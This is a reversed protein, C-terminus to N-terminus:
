WVGEESLITSLYISQSHGKSLNVLESTSNQPVSVFLFCVALRSGFFDTRDNIQFREWTVTQLCLTSFLEGAWFQWYYIWATLLTVNEARTGCSNGMVSKSSEESLSFLHCTFSIIALLIEPQKMMSYQTVWFHPFVLLFGFVISFM